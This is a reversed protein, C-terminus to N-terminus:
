WDHEMTGPYSNHTESEGMYHTDHIVPVYHQRGTDKEADDSAQVRHHGNGMNTSHGYWSDNHEIIVPNRVGNQIVDHKLSPLRKESWTEEITEGYVRDVSDDVFGKIEPGTMFMKLQDPHIHRAAGKSM